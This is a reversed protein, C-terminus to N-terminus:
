FILQYLMRFIGPAVKKNTQEQISTNIQEELANTPKVPPPLPKGEYIQALIDLPTLDANQMIEKKWVTHDEQLEDLLFGVWAGIIYSENDIGSDEYPKPNSSEALIRLGARLTEPSHIQTPYASYLSSIIEYYHATGEIRDYYTAAKFDEPHTTKYHQYNSLVQLILTDKQASAEMSNAELLLKYLLHRETRAERNDLMPNRSRNNITEPSAWHQDQELQHFMEHNHTLLLDYTGLYQYKQYELVNSLAEESLALYVGQLSDNKFPTFGINYRARAPCLAKLQKESLTKIDGKPSILWSKNNEISEVAVYLNVVKNEPWLSPAVSNYNKIQNAFVTLFADATKPADQCNVGFCFGSAKIDPVTTTESYPIPFIFKHGVYITVLILAIVIVTAYVSFKLFKFLKKM